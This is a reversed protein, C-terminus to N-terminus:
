GEDLKLSLKMDDNVLTTELKRIITPRQPYEGPRICELEGTVPIKFFM